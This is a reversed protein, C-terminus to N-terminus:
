QRKLYAKWPQWYYQKWGENVGEYDHDPVNAHTLDIRGGPGDKTFVLTLVSDLDDEGWGSSRWAQVIMRKPVILLNKGSLTGDWASFPAGARRTVTVEAGIIEGHRKADLYSDFLEEPPAALRVSQVITKAAPDGERAKM